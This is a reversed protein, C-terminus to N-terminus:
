WTATGTSPVGPRLIIDGVTKYKSLPRLLARGTSCESYSTKWFYLTSPHTLLYVVSGKRQQLERHRRVLVVGAVVALLSLAVIVVVAIVIGPNSDLCVCVCV